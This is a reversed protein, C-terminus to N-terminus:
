LMDNEELWQRVREHEAQYKAECDRLIQQFEPEDRINDFLPDIRFIQLWWLPIKDLQNFARLNELALEKEGKFAHVGALNYNTSFDKRGLQILNNYYEIMTNFYYDAEEKYGNMWYAFGIRHMDAVKYEGLADLREYYKTLLQLSKKYQRSYGYQLGLQLLNANNTTDMLYIIEFSKLCKEFNGLNLDISALAWLYIVSDGHLQLAENQYFQYKEEFGSWHYSSSLNRLLSPLLPGRYLSAAKHNNEISKVFDFKYIYAIGAGSYAMWNNPNLKIAKEYESIAKDNQESIRYYDGKVTFAESLQPDLILAKDALILVSDLFNEAFYEEWYHKDWYVWALGTYAQAFSSDYELAKTYFYEARELAEKNNENLLYHNHEERGRQYLDLATLSTTPVKEIRQKEEPTIAIEIEKAITQAVESQVVFIDEYNRDYEKFFVHNGEEAVVLQITLKVQDEIMFFSGEILYSVDLEKGIEKASKTNERYQEVSTRPMVRLGEIMSLHGTIADLVGNALHQKNPDESLYELPLVAISKELVEKKNLRPLINLVILTVIVVFSIYSAIKWSNSSKPIDVTKAKDASETKVIGGEPQIDYIWSVIVTIFFGVILLILVLNLTWQPLGLSPSLIDVLELIVFAAGAYVTIVRVVNRRKLEQWFQSLKNPM